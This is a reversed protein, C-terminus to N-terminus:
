GGQRAEILSSLGGALNTGTTGVGSSLNTLLDTINGTLRTGAGSLNAEAGRGANLLAVNGSEFRGIDEAGIGAALDALSEFTQSSKLKGGAARNGVINERGTRLQERALPSVQYDVDGGFALNSLAPLATGTAANRFPATLQEIEAIQQENLAIGRAASEELIQNIRKANASSRFGFLDLPDAATQGAEGLINDPHLPNVVDLPTDFGEVLSAM